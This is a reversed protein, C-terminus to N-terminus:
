RNKSAMGGPPKDPASAQFPVRELALAVVPRATHLCCRRHRLSPSRTLSLNQESVACLRLLSGIVGFGYGKQTLARHQPLRLVLEIEAREREGTALRDEGVSALQSPRCHSAHAFSRSPCTASVM